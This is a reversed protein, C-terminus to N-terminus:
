PTHCSYHRYTSERMWSGSGRKRENKVIIESESGGVRREGGAGEFM